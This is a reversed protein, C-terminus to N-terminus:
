VYFVPLYIVVKNVRSEHCDNFNIEFTIAIKKEFQLFVYDKDSLRMFEM